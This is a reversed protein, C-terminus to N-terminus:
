NSRLRHVECITFVDTSTGKPGQAGAAGPAAMPRRQARATKRKTRLNKGARMCTWIGRRVFIREYKGHSSEMAEDDAFSAFGQRAQHLSHVHSACSHRPHLAGSHWLGGDGGGNGNRAHGSSMAGTTLSCFSSTLSQPLQHHKRRRRPPNRLGFDLLFFRKELM